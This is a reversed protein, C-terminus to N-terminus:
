ARSCPAIRGILALGALISTHYASCLVAHDMRMPREAEGGAGAAAQKPAGGGMKKGRKRGGGDAGGGAGGGGDRAPNAGAPRSSEPLSSPSSPSAVLAAESQVLSRNAEFVLRRVWRGGAAGAGDAAAGSLCVDEVM